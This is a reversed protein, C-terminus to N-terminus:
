VNVREFKVKGGACHLIPFIIINYQLIIRYDLQITCFLEM